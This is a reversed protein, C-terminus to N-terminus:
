AFQHEQFEEKQLSQVAPYSYTIATDGSSFFGERKCHHNNHEYKISNITLSEEQNQDKGKIRMEAYKTAAKVFDAYPQEGGEMDELMREPHFQLGVRFLGNDPDHQSPCFYGEILGEPMSVCMPALGVALERVGQHHYSNVPFIKVPTYEALLNKSSQVPCISTSTKPPSINKPHEVLTISEKKTHSTWVELPTSPFVAIPHRFGDYNSYSIHPGCNPLQSEVDYFLTGGMAVNMVQSGRCIGFFPINYKLVHQILAMEVADKYQDISTDSTHKSEIESMLRTAEDKGSAGYPNLDFGIDEGEVLLLGDMPLYAKLLGATLKTRPILVPAAGFSQLLDIHYEGVFDVLKEKRVHSRCVVLIRPIVRLDDFDVPHFSM